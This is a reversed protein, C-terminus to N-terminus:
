RPSVYVHYGTHVRLGPLGYSPWDRAYHPPRHGPRVLVAVPEHEATKLIQALTTNRNHGSPQASACRAHYGVPTALRGTILCPPRIGLDRLDAAIREYDSNGASAIHVARTLVLHQTALQTAVLAIVLATTAPRLAPRVGTALHTFCDAAPIALLAYAPLLFRPAAYDILFLYPVAIAIACLAPLLSTALRRARAAAVFGATIVVPLAFWWLSDARDRWPGHCPRCLERRGNLTRLEDGLAFHWGIGGEIQGSRHLRGLVGGYHLYSEVIWEAGGVALGAAIVALLVLGPWGGVRGGVRGRMVVAAAALPVALWVADPPRLLAVVALGAGLIILAARDGPDSAARLFGGVAALGVLAVWLNPMAQSGYLQTVWLGAFLLGALALVGAPRLRRWVRLATFLGAGSLVALYVRLATTSSTVATVPAVLLSTGRARPASFYAAPIHPSVQSIYVTEDWGLGMHPPVFVLQSLTFALAIVM